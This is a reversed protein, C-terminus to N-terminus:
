WDNYTYHENYSIPEYNSCFDLLERSRAKYCENNSSFFKCVDDKNNVEIGKFCFIENDNDGYPCFNGYRCSQCCAVRVNAPMVKQLNKIAFETNDSVESIFYHNELYIEYHINKFENELSQEYIMKTPIKLLISDILYNVYLIKEKLM